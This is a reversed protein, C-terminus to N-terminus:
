AWSPFHMLNLKHLTLLIIYFPQAAITHGCTSFYVLVFGQNGAGIVGSTSPYFMKRCRNSQANDCVFRIIETIQKFEGTHYQCSSQVNDSSRRDALEFRSILGCIIDVLWAAAWINESLNHMTIFSDPCKLETLILVSILHWCQASQLYEMQLCSRIDMKLRSANWTM